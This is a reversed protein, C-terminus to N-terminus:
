EFRVGEDALEKAVDAGLRTGWRYGLDQSARVLQSQAGAFRQGIPSQFFQVLQQLEPETFAAAYIPALSDLFTPGAVKARQLVREWFVAPIQPAAKQQAPIALEFGELFARDAGVATLLTRATAV